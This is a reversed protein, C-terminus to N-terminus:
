MNEQVLGDGRQIRPSHKRSLEGSSLLRRAIAREFMSVLVRHLSERPVREGTVRNELGAPKFRWDTRKVKELKFAKLFHKLVQFSFFLYM